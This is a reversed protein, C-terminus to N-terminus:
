PLAANARECLDLVRRAHLAEDADSRSFLTEPDTGAEEDGYFAIEREERLQRSAAVLFDLEATAVDPLRVASRRLAEGVDHVHPVEAGSARLLAKLAMEVTEQCRRLVLNWAAEAHLREAERLIRHALRLYSRAMEGSTM